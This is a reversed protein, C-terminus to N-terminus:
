VPPIQRQTFVDQRRSTPRASLACARLQTHGTQGLAGEESCHGFQGRKEGLAKKSWWSVCAQWWAAVVVTFVVEVRSAAAPRCGGASVLRHEAWTGRTVKAAAVFDIEANRHTTRAIIDVDLPRQADDTPKSWTEPNLRQDRPTLANSAEM